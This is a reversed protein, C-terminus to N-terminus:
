SRDSRYSGGWEREGTPQVRHPTVEPIREVNGHERSPDPVGTNGPEAITSRRYRRYWRAMKKRNLGLREVECARKSKSGRPFDEFGEFNPTISSGWSRPNTKQIWPM